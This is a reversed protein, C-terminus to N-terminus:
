LCQILSQILPGQFSALLGWSLPTLDIRHLAPEEDEHEDQQRRAAPRSLEHPNLHASSLQSGNLHTRCVM